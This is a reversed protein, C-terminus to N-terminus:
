NPKQQARLARVRLVMGTAFELARPRSKAVYLEYAAPNLGQGNLAQLQAFQAACLPEIALGVTAADSRGDDLREAAQGLCNSLSTQAADIQAASARPPPPSACAVLLLPPIAALLFIRINM